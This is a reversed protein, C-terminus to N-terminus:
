QKKLYQVASNYLFIYNTLLISNNRKSLDILKEVSKKDLAIPKEVLVHKKNELLKKM